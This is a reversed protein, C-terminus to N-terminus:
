QVPRQCVPCTKFDKLAGVTQKNTAVLNGINIKINILRNNIESLKGVVNLKKIKDIKEKLPVLNILKAKLSELQELKSKNGVMKKILASIRKLKIIKASIDKAKEASLSPKAIQIKTIKEKNSQYRGILKKLDNLDVIQKECSSIPLKIEKVVQEIEIWKNLAKAQEKIGASKEKFQAIALEKEKIENQITKIEESVRLVGSLSDFYKARETPGSDILFNTKNPAFCVNISSDSAQIETSPILTRLEEPVKGPKYFRKGNIIWDNKTESTNREREITHGDFVLKGKTETNDDVSWFDKIVTEGRPKNEIIWRIIRLVATKGAENDGTIVNLGPKFELQKNSHRQFNQISLSSIM